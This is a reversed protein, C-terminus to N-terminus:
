TECKEAFCMEGVRDADVHVGISKTVLAPDKREPASLYPIIGLLPLGALKEIIQPNTEASADPFNGPNNIIIGLVTLGGTLACKVTLLTHNITGLGNGAIVVVPIDLIRILDANTFTKYLPSM